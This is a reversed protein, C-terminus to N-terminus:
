FQENRKMSEEEKRFYQINIVVRKTEDKNEKRGNDLM